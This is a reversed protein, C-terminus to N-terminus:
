KLHAFANEVLHRLRYLYSGYKRQAKRNKRPPIQVQMAQSQAQQIIMDSNYGEDAILYKAQFGEILKDACTCDATTASTVIARIPLTLRLANALM